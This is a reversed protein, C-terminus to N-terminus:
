KDALKEPRKFHGYRLFFGTQAAVRASVLMGMHSVPLTLHDSMNALRTEEVAVTGDNPVPLGRLVGGVGVALSGAISGLTRRGQWPPVSGTLAPISKGLLRKLPHSRAFFRAVHSGQHPTGLTVMRGPRQEPFDHLLRRIVLGGLSHGVLHITGAHITMLFQNLREANQRLDCRVARYSFQKVSFGQQRLRIRLLTMDLGTMWLGHVLVVVPREALSSLTVNEFYQQRTEAM